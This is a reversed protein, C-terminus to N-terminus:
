LSSNFDSTDQDRSTAIALVRAVSRGLASDPPCRGAAALQGLDVNSMDILGSDVYGSDDYGVVIADPAVAYHDFRSVSGEGLPGILAL